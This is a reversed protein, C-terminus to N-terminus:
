GCARGSPQARGAPEADEEILQSLKVQKLFGEVQLALRHWVPRIGCAGQHRCASQGDAYKECVDEFIHGEVARVIDAMHIDAPPRSLAYGGAAGRQSGVLGARRLRMLIQDVYDRPINERDSLDKAAVPGNGYARALQVMIRTGYESSSTIRM